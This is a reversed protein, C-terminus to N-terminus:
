TKWMYVITWFTVSKPTQTEV